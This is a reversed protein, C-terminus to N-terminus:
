VRLCVKRELLYETIVGFPQSAEQVGEQWEAFFLLYALYLIQWRFKHGFQFAVLICYYIYEAGIGSAPFEAYLHLHFPRISELLSYQEIGGLEVNTLRHLALFVAIQLRYIGQIKHIVDELTISRFEDVVIADHVILVAVLYDFAQMEGEYFQRLEGRMGDGVLAHHYQPETEQRFDIGIRLLNRRIQKTVRLYSFGYFLQLNGAKCIGFESGVVFEPIRYPYLLGKLIVAILLAHFLAHLM